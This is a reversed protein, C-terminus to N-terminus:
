ANRARRLREHARRMETALAPSAYPGDGELQDIIVDVTEAPRNQSLKSKAVIRTPTLRFGVTGTAIRRAYESNEPTGEMRRPEPLRDEFHDVLQGLVAYNEEPTLIEPVGYLHAVVFNWTPVAPKADYWGPSIYGHPGQVIFLVEAEGLVHLLDDPRGVHTLISIDDRDEDLVIPYHSAVIGDPTTSVLTAWPNERILRKIEEPDQLTFSPNQRM